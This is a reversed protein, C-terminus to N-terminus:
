RPNDLWDQLYWMAKKVDERDNHKGGFAVRWLYKIATALRMDTIHRIVEICEITRAIASEGTYDDGNFKTDIWPGRKYHQPNIPDPDPERLLGGSAFARPHPQPGPNDPAKGGPYGPYGGKQSMTAEQKRRLTEIHAVV